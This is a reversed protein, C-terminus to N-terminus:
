LIKRLYGKSDMPLIEIVDVLCCSILFVDVPKMKMARIKEM